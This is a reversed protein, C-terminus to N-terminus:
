KCVTGSMCLMFREGASSYNTRKVVVPKIYDSMISGQTRIPAGLNVSDGPDLRGPTMAQQRTTELEATLEDNHDKLDQPYFPSVTLYCLFM